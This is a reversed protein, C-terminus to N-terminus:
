GVIKMLENYVTDTLDVFKKVNSATLIVSLYATDSPHYRVEVQWARYIKLTEPDVAVARDILPIKSGPLAKTLVQITDQFNHGHLSYRYEGRGSQRPTRDYFALDCKNSFNHNLVYVSETEKWKYHKFISYNIICELTYGSLYFMNNLLSKQKLPDNIQATTNSSLLSLSDLMVKCTNLHKFSAKQYDKFNM